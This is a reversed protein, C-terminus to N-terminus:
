GSLSPVEPIGAGAMGLSAAFLRPLRRLNVALMSLTFVDSVKSLGRLKVQRITTGHQKGDGFLTEIMKRITQSLGYGAHGTTRADIRSERTARKGIKTDYYYTNQAVHPTVNIARCAAVFDETDYNKDAGVTKRGEGPLAALMDIAAEREAMGTAQTLRTDVALKARNDMLVHGLYAPLAEGRNSKTYVWMAIEQPTAGLREKLMERATLFHIDAVATETDPGISKASTNRGAEQKRADRYRAVTSDITETVQLRELQRHLNATQRTKSEIELPSTAAMLELERIQREIDQKEVLLDWARQRENLTAPDHDYDWHLARYQRQEPSVVDWLNPWFAEVVRERLGKPLKSLPKDFWGDLSTTLSVFDAM